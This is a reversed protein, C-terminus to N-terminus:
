KIPDYNQHLLRFNDLSGFLSIIEKTIKGNQNNNLIQPLSSHQYSFIENTLFHKKPNNHIYLITKILYDDSTILRRRFPLEFLKGTRSYNKNVAQTYSNFVNSFQQSIIKDVDIQAKESFSERIENESKTKIM